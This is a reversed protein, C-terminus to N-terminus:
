YALLGELMREDFHLPSNVNVNAFLAPREAIADRGGGVIAAMALCDEAAAESSPEGAWVMDTLRIAALARVLHRADLPVDNPEIINRGPTDLADTSQTLMILRELDAM